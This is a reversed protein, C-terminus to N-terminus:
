ETTGMDLSLVADVDDPDDDDVDYEDESVDIGV